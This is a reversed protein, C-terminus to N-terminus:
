RGKLGSATLPCASARGGGSARLGPGDTSSPRHVPGVAAAQRGSAMPLNKPAKWVPLQSSTPPASPRAERPPRPGCRSPGLAQGLDGCWLGSDTRLANALVDRPDTQAMMQNTEEEMGWMFCFGPLTPSPLQREKFSFALAGLFPGLAPPSRATLGCDPM